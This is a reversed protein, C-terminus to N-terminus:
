KSCLAIGQPKAILMFQENDILKSINPKSISCSTLQFGM